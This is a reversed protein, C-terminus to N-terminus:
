WILFAIILSLGFSPSIFQVFVWDTQAFDYVRAKCQCRAWVSAQMCQLMCWGHMLCHSRLVVFMIPYTKTFIFFIKSSNETSRHWSFTLYVASIKAHWVNKWETSYARLRTANVAHMTLNCNSRCAQCCTHYIWVPYARKLKDTQKRLTHIPQSWCIQAIVFKLPCQMTAKVHLGMKTQVRAQSCRFLVRVWQIYLFLLAPLFATCFYNM